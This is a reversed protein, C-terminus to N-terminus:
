VRGERRADDPRFGSWVAIADIELEGVSRRVADVDFIQEAKVGVFIDIRIVNPEQAEGKM